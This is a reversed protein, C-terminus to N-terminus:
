QSGEGQRRTRPPQKYENELTNVATDNEKREVKPRETHSKVVVAVESLPAQPKRDGGKFYVLGAGIKKM